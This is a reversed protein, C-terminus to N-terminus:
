THLFCILLIFFLCREYTIIQNYYLLLIRPRFLLLFMIKTLLLKKKFKLWGYMRNFNFTLTESMENEEVMWGDM